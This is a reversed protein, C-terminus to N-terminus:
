PASDTLKNLRADIADLKDMIANLAKDLIIRPFRDSDSEIGLRKCISLVRATYELDGEATETSM